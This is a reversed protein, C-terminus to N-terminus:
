GKMCLSRYDLPLEQRLEWVGSATKRYYPPSGSDSYKPLGLNNKLFVPIGARDAAEIIEKVWAWEPMKKPKTQAGIIVWNIGREQLYGSMCTPGIHWHLLPELSIYKVRAEISSLHATATQFMGPDTASAGVWCNDPFPSWAQLGRPNKTLFLFTHQPCQRITNFVVDRLSMAAWSTWAIGIKSDVWDGFLDGMFAVGIRAPKKLALPSLFAEPYFTPEFGGPYHDKHRSTLKKAWCNEGLPCVGNQWHRCGSYFNWAHTLYEIGSPGLRILNTKPSM